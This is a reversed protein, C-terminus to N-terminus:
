RSRTQSRRSRRDSHKKMAQWFSMQRHEDGIAWTFRSAQIRAVSLNIYVATHRSKRDCNLRALLVVALLSASSQKRIQQSVTLEPGYHEYDANPMPPTSSPMRETVPSPSCRGFRAPKEGDFIRTVFALAPNLRSLMSM